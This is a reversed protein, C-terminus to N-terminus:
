RVSDQPVRSRDASRDGRRIRTDLATPKVPPAGETAPETLTTDSRMWSPVPSPSEGVAVRGERRMDNHAWVVHVVTGPPTAGVWRALQEPYEVREGEYAVILDGARLGIRAAPGGAATAEVIAGLPVHVDPESTSQVYGARTSVGLWGLHVTGDRRVTEYVGRVEDLPIVFSAGGPRRELRMDGEGVQPSGLEGQVLGILQGRSNLAAGGSNGPYVQNTLQLLALRPERWIYSINGVSQTPAAGYSSGLTIVYDGLRPAQPAFELAPLELGPVRVVAVNHIVDLGELTGEVQLNNETVVVIKESEFVVTASTLVENASIAVGSGVRTFLKNSRVAGTPFHLVPYHQGAVTVISPRARRVIRDVDSEIESLVGQARPAAPRAFPAVLLLALALVGAARSRRRAPGGLAPSTRATRV